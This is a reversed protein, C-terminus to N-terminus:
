VGDDEVAGGESSVDEPVLALGPYDDDETGESDERDAAEDEVPVEPVDLEGLEVNIVDKEEDWVVTFFDDESEDFETPTISLRGGIRHMAVTTIRTLADLRQETAQLQNDMAMFGEVVAQVQTAELQRGHNSKAAKVLLEMINM